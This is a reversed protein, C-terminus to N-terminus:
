ARLMQLIRLHIERTVGGVINSRSHLSVELNELRGGKDDSIIAGAESAIRYAAASDLTRSGNPSAFIFGDFTGDALYCMSIAASGLIRIKNVSRIREVIKGLYSANSIEIGLTDIKHETTGSIRNKQISLKKGNRFAGRGNYAYFYDGDILNEVYGFLSDSFTRGGQLVAFSIAFLPLGIKANHSGDIPDCVILDKPNSGFTKEGIEEGLFGFSGDIRDRLVRLITRESVQDIRLTEDGAAGTGVSVRSNPTRFMMIAKKRAERTAERFTLLWNL